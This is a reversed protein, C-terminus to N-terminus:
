FSYIALDAQQDYLLSEFLVFV